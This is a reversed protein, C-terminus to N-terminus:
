KRLAGFLKKYALAGKKVRAVPRKGAGTLKYVAERATRVAYENGAPIGGLKTYQGIFAFNVTRDKVTGPKDGESHPLAPSAAFPMLCPVVDIIDDIIEEWNYELKLFKVLEFLIEAGSAEKLKRDIFKGEANVEVGYGCVVYSGDDTQSIGALTLGWPSEKFTTLVGDNDANGTLERIYDGLKQSKSTIAFSVVAGSDSSHFVDPTGFGARKKAINHWLMASPTLTDYAPAPENYNGTSVCEYLSGNTIFCLDNTNLYFTKSTGRDVLHIASLKNTGDHFDVDKVYCDTVIETGLSTLYRELAAIVTKEFGDESQVTNTLTFLEEARYSFCGLVNKLEAASATRPILYSASVVTWFNSSFFEPVSAFYDEVSVKYINYDKEAILTKLLRVSEKNLSFTKNLVTGDLTIIRANEAKPHTNMYLIIEDKVSMNAINESPINKLIDMLASCDRLSLLRSATYSYGSKADGEHPFGGANGSEEFIHISDAPVNCDNILYYAGALAALGGGAFYINQKPMLEKKKDSQIRLQKKKGATVIGAVAAIGLVAGLAALGAITKKKM